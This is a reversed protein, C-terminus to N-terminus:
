DSLSLVTIGSLTKLSFVEQIRRSLADRSTSFLIEPVQRTIWEWHLPGLNSGQTPSNVRCVAVLVQHLWIFLFLYKSKLFGIDWVSFPMKIFHIGRSHAFPTMGFYLKIFYIKRSISSKMQTSRLYSSIKPSVSKLPGFSQTDKLFNELIIKKVWNKVFVSYSHTRLQELASCDKHWMDPFGIRHQHNFLADCAKVMLESQPLFSM